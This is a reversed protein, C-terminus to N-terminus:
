FNCKLFPVKLFFICQFLHVKNMEEDVGECLVMEMFEKVDMIVKAVLFKMPFPFIHSFMDVSYELALYTLSGFESEREGVHSFYKQANNLAQDTTELGQDPFTIWSIDEETM